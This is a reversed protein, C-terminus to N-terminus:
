QQQVRRRAGGPPSQRGAGAVATQWASQLNGSDRQIQRRTTRQWGGLLRGIETVMAAVHRYQGASLWGWRSALRLYVRVRALAEDARELRELRAQGQRCNAEELRERLDFAADLLRRTFSHRHARPFNNTAPLLWTLFDFTRTFIVMEERAM